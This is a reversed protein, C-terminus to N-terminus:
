PLPKSQQTAANLRTQDSIAQLALRAVGAAPPSTCTIVPLGLIRERLRRWQRNRAGGGLSVIRSPPPAGLAKLRQWGQAEIRALGELLGHLYLSDSVPRPELVPELNPEDVPFREGPGPLPRLMLGSDLEPNIQRSLEELEDDTFLERLVAGGANSAGGSLWRGGVRHNTIGAGVLPVEVFRKLVITSGLVTIGDDPGANATLVAANADTTGAVVLVGKPLCLNQAQEAAVTGLVKGSAVIEPLVMPLISKAFSVPWSQNILDWGLRLNNGEEGWQWNNLLWGSIWDAQHRLLVNNGHNAILRLARALSSSISAAPEESSVLSLLAEQQEPCNLHYPLAASLAKGSRECALLTGSTGDVAIAKLAQGLKTPLARILETCCTQWDEPVELGTPYNTTSTHILEQQENLVALRVGSTGLDIGLVLSSKNM